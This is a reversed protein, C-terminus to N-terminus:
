SERPGLDRPGDASAGPALVTRTCEGTHCFVGCRTLKDPYHEAGVLGFRLFRAEHRARSHSLVVRFEDRPLAPPLMDTTRENDDNPLSPEGLM